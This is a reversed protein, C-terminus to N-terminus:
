LFEVSSTRSGCYVCRLSLPDKSEVKFRTVVHEDMNTICNQNKCRIIGSIFKPVSVRYKEVVDYEEVINITANTAILAIKNLEGKELRRDEVKVIDKKGMERSSVNMAMSVTEESPSKIKLVKLVNLAQGSTIHDIVTGDKIPEVRLKERKM